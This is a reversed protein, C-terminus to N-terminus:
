DGMCSNKWSGREKSIRLREKQQQLELRRQSDMEAIRQTRREEAAEKAQERRIKDCARKTLDRFKARLHTPLKMREGSSRRLDAARNVAYAPNTQNPM